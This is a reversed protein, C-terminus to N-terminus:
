GASPLRIAQDQSALRLPNADMWNCFDEAAVHSSQSARGCFGIQKENIAPM